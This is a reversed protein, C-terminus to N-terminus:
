SANFLKGLRLVHRKGAEVTERTTLGKDKGERNIRVAAASLGIAVAFIPDAVRSVIYAPTSM